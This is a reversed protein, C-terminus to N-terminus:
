TSYKSMKMYYHGVKFKRGSHIADNDSEVFQSAPIVRFDCSIRTSDSINKRNFHRCKNGNFKQITGYPFNLPHFDGKGPESETYCSNTNSQGTLTLIFNTENAPHNYDADCHIGIIDSDTDSDRAGLATNNPLHIRFSPEKQVIYETESDVLNPLLYEQLFRHYLSVFEQYHASQYYKKHFDTSTDNEFRIQEWHDSGKVISHISDLAVNDPVCLVKKMTEAFPYKDTPYAYIEETHLLNMKKKIQFLVFYKFAFGIKLFLLVVDM